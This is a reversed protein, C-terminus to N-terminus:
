ELVIVGWELVCFGDRTATQTTPAVMVINNDNRGKISYWLRFINMPQVSFKLITMREITSNYQPYIEYYEYEKLYPIWYDTFDQIENKNFGSEKLNNQFFMELTNQKVLWGFEKQTLDPNKSEYFLYDYTSDIKGDNTITVNWGNYYQPISEVIKGGSPFLIQINLETEVTPYIYINPKYVTITDIDNDDDCDDPDVGNECNSLLLVITVLLFLINLKKM